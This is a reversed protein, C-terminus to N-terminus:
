EGNQPRQIGVRAFPDAEAADAMEDASVSVGGGPETLQRDRRRERGEKGSRWLRNGARGAGREGTERGEGIGGLKGRANRACGGRGGTKGRTGRVKGGCGGTKRRM